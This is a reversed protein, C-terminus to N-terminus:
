KGINTYSVCDGQNKFATGNERTVNQWGGNKCQDKSTAVPLNPEFDYTFTDSGAGFILKDVATTLGPNGSGQNVGFGGVIVADPNMSVITDWSVFTDRNPAGNIPNSSWWTANGGNFADWTQWSGSVVAGQDTNYVPEFVLTTFGGPASGNADVEINLAADQQLSGTTRYTSYGIANIASLPTGTHDYNFVTIKDAGTPTTLQLSGQGLPPNAPGNVFSYAGANRVYGVWNNTPLTNEPQTTVDSSRVVTTSAASVVPLSVLGFSLMVVLAVLATAALGKLRKSFM